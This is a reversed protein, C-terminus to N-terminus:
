RQAIIAQNLAAVVEQIFKKSPNEYARVEGAATTLVVAHTPSQANALAFACILLLVGLVAFMFHCAMLIMALAGFVVLTTVPTWDPPIEVGKVSTVNRIAFTQGGVMFRSKTVTIDGHDLIAEEDGLRARQAEASRQRQQEQELSERAARKSEEATRQKARLQQTRRANEERRARERERVLDDSRRAEEVKDDHRKLPKSFDLGSLPMWNGKHVSPNSLLTSQKIRKDRILEAIQDEHYPGRTEDQIAGESRYYWNEEPSSAQTLFQFAHRCSPCVITAAVMKEPVGLSAGCSPCTTTRMSTSLIMAANEGTVTCNELTAALRAFVRTSPQRTHAPSVSLCNKFLSPLFPTLFRYSM